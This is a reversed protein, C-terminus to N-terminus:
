EGEVPFASLIEVGSIDSLVTILDGPDSGPINVVFDDLARGDSTEVVALSRINCGAFGIASAVMGLSGPRDPLALRLQYTAM